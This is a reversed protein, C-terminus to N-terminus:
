KLNMSKKQAGHYQNKMLLILLPISFTCTSDHFNQKSTLKKLCMESGETVACTFCVCFFSISTVNKDGVIVDKLLSVKLDM